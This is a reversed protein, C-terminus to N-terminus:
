RGYENNKSVTLALVVLLVLYIGGIAIATQWVLLPYGCISVFETNEFIHINDVLSFPNLIKLWLLSKHCCHEYVLSVCVCFAGGGLFSVLVNKCIYFINLMVMGIVLFGFARVAAALMFYQCINMDLPSGGLFSVAYVPMKLGEFSGAVFAFGLYDTISFILSIMVSFMGAGVVKAVQTAKGGKKNTILLSEMNGERESGYVASLGYLVLLLILIYSFSYDLFLETSELYSFEKIERDKFIHYIGANKRYEAMNGADKANSAATSARQCIESARNQYLAFHRFSTIYYRSLFNYDSYVTGTMYKKLDIERSATMEIVEAGLAQYMNDLSQIKDDTIQGKYDEYMDWYTERWVTGASVLYSKQHYVNVIKILDIIMFVLVLIVVSKKRFAKKWEYRVLQM